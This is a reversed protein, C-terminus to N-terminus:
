GNIKKIIIELEKLCDLLTKLNDKQSNELNTAEKITDKVSNNVALIENPNTSIELIKKIKAVEADILSSISNESISISNLQGIIKDLIESIKPDICCDDNGEVLEYVYNKKNKNVGLYIGGDICISFVDIDDDLFMTSILSGNKSFKSVYTSCNKEYAVYKNIGDTGVATFRLNICCECFQDNCCSNSNIEDTLVEDRLFKGKEDVSYINKDDAILYKSNIRDFFIDNIKMLKLCNPKIVFNDLKKYDTSLKEFHNIHGCTSMLYINDKQNYTFIIYNKSLNVENILEGKKNHIYLNNSNSDLFEFNNDKITMNTNIRNSTLDIKNKIYM